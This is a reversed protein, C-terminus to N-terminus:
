ESSPPNTVAQLADRKNKEDWVAGFVYSGIIATGAGIFGIGLQQHLADDPAFKQLYVLNAGIFLLAWHMIRRRKKWNDSTAERVIAARTAVTAVAAAKTEETV